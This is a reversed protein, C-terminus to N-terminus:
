ASPVVADNASTLERQSIGVHSQHPRSLQFGARALLVPLERTSVRNKEKEEEPLEPWPLLAPHTKKKTDRPGPKYNWGQLGQAERWREHELEAMLEIEDPQFQYSAADWDTLPRIFYGGAALKTATYDVQRRNSEKVSEPLSEWPVLAPNVLFTLGLKKQQELYVDHAARALMEHTGDLVLDPTCTREVLGFAHLNGYPVAEGSFGRLLQALGSNEDMLVDIPPEIHGIRSRLKLGAQLGQAQDELCVYIQCVSCSGQDDFLFEASEFMSSDVDMNWAAIQCCQALIPYRSCLNNTKEEAQPDIVTLRMRRNRGDGREYWDRAVRLALFQGLNELGIVVVHPADQGTMDNGEIAQSMKLMMQAGRDYINFLELRFSSLAEMGLERERLLEWLQPEVLHVSCVLPSRKRNACLARALVAVEANTEDDGCVSVLYRARQVAARRQVPAERADGTLVIVGKDRTAGIQLNDEDAEIVVVRIGRERFRRALLGGKSGLGCIVVQDRIFWLRIFQLQKRFIVAAALVATYAALVPVLLRAVELEWSVPGSVDGSELTILQLTLYFVDSPSLTQDLARAYKVFGVYGLLLALLALILLMPWQYDQWLQRLHRKKPPISRPNDPSTEQESGTQSMM